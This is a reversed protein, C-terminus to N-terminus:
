AQEEMDKREKGRREIKKRIRTRQRKHKGSDNKIQDVQKQDSKQEKFVM